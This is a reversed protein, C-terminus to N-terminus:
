PTPDETNEPPTPAPHHEPCFPAACGDPYNKHHCPWCYVGVHMLGCGSCRSPAVESGCGFCRGPRLENPAVCAKTATDRDPRLAAPPAPALTKCKARDAPDVDGMCGYNGCTKCIAPAAPPAPALAYRLLEAMRSWAWPGAVAIPDGLRPPNLTSQREAQAALDAVRARLAEDRPAAGLGALASEAALARADSELRRTQERLAAEWAEASQAKRAEDREEEARKQAALAADREAALREIQEEAKGYRVEVQRRYLDREERLAEVRQLFASRKRASGEDRGRYRGEEYMSLGYENLLREIEDMDTM